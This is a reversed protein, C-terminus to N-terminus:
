VLGDVPVALLSTSVNPLSVAVNVASWSTTLRSAVGCTLMSASYASAVGNIALGSNRTVSEWVEALASVTFKSIVWGAAGSTDLIRVIVIGALWVVAVDFSRSNWYAWVFPSRVAVTTLPLPYAGTSAGFSEAVTSTSSSLELRYTSGWSVLSKSGCM